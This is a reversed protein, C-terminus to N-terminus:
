KEGYGGGGPTEILFLDGQEVLVSGSGGIEIVKGDRRIVRNVGCKGPGAGRLGSPPYKRHGSLITANMKEFFRVKRVTGNGGRYKGQGGSNKRISFEELMVPYRIEMVEPDTIRSNTMHTHVADAGDFGPGAGAGGCITEYYQYSDNGFTFNNMTGQSPAMIDLAAFLTDVICQSTEVNGAVVAAPYEPDLISGEPIIIELPRLCGDNLPIDSQVLTRFVYLVAARCVSAPANFNGPSQVSTGTFDICACGRTRDITIRVSIISGDDMRYSYSGNGLVDIVKRVENEANDQVHKMYSSIVEESYQEVLKRFEIIGKENAAIQARIDAMNQLPKRAPYPGSGLWQLVREGDFHRKRVIRLGSTLVGEEHINRSDHPMSGPTKGGIDAHHGRSAVYAYRENRSDFVPTIVTIDPLHTGGQYPSNILYTDGDEMDPVNRILSRVSESMSGIHVPIHPANAILNGDRDFLACSFDRREKINVSHSTNQLTYGMQEAISMFRNNFIELMVPDASTDAINDCFRPMVRRLIIHNHQTIEGEWGPEIVITSTDEIIVSPGQIRCGPRLDNRLFIPTDHYQGYFYTRIKRAPICEVNEHTEHVREAIRETTGIVEMSVAEIVPTREPDMFGFIQRHKRNFASAISQQDMGDELEIQLNTDSGSYRIHMRAVSIINDQMVNQQVLRNKGEKELDSLIDRVEEVM